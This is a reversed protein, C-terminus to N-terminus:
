RAVPPPQSTCEAEGDTLLFDSLDFGGRVNAKAYSENASVNLVSAANLKLVFGDTWSEDVELIKSGQGSSDLETSRPIRIPFRIGYGSGVLKATVEYPAGTTGSVSLSAPGLVQLGADEYDCSLRLSGTLSVLALGGSESSQLELSANSWAGVVGDVKGMCESSPATYDGSLVAAGGTGASLNLSGSASDFARGTGTAFVGNSSTASIGNRELDDVRVTDHYARFQVFDWDWTGCVTQVTPEYDSEDPLPPLGDQGGTPSIAGGLLVLPAITVFTM